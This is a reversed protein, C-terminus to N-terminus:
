AKVAKPFGGLARIIPATEYDALDIDPHDAAFRDRDLRKTGNRNSYKYLLAGEADVVEAADGAAAQLLTALGRKEKELPSITATLQAYRAAWGRVEDLNAPTTQTATAQPWRAKVEAATVTDWEIPPPTQETVCEWFMEAAVEQTDIQRTDPEVTWYTMRRLDGILACVYVHSWGTVAIQHQAQVWWAPSLTWGDRNTLPSDPDKYNRLYHSSTNKFEAGGGDATNRDPSALMFDAHKSRVMGVRRMDVGLHEEALTQIIPELMNGLRLILPTDPDEHAPTTALKDAWRDYVTEDTYGHGAIVRMDTATVGTRRLQLWADRDQDIADAGIVVTGGPIAYDSKAAPASITTSTM